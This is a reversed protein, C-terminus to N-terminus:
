DTIDVSYNMLVDYLKKDINSKYKDAIEKIYNEKIHKYAVFADIPSQYCGIYSQKMSGKSCSAYYLNDREDYKVGIPYLGRIKDAKTFLNNIERPVFCCNEESYIKNGKILIDKDLAWGENGFGIQKHCWEYFYSYNLFNNSVTCGKYTPKTNHSKESYCRRLMGSWLNYETLIKNNESTKYLNDNIGIGYILKM